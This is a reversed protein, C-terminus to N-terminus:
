NVVAFLFGDYGKSGVTQLATATVRDEQSVQELFEQVGIVNPDDTTPDIVAGGRVVNDAIIVSGPATLKLAWDLYACLNAKDADIFVLDFPPQGERALM